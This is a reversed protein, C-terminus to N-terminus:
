NLKIHKVGLKVNLSIKFNPGFDIIKVEPVKVGRSEQYFYNFSVNWTCNVFLCTM